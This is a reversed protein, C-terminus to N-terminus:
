PGNTVVLNGSGDPRTRTIVHAAFLEEPKPYWIDQPAVSFAKRIFTEDIGNAIWYSL